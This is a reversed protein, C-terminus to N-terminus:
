VGDPPLARHEVLWGIGAPKIQYDKGESWIAIHILRRKQLRDTYYTCLAPSLNTLGPLADARVYENGHNHARALVQLIRVEEPELDVRGDSRPPPDPPKPQRERGTSGATKEAGAKAATRLAALFDARSWGKPALLGTAKEVAMVLRKAADEDSLDAGGFDQLPRPLTEFTQGSHCVPFVGRELIWAAGLEISIWPERVSTPSVLSILMCAQSDKLEQKIKQLWDDGGPNDRPDSSVFVAVRGLFADELGDKVVKGLAAEEAVHSVFIKFPPEPM